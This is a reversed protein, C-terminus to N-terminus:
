PLLSYELFIGKMGNWEMGEKWIFDLDWGLKMRPLFTDSPYNFSEWLSIGSDEDSLHLVLNKDKKQAELWTSWVASKNLVLSSTLRHKKDDVVRDHQQNPQTPKCGM